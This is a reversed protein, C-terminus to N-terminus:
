IDCSYLRAAILSDYLSPPYIYPFYLFPFPGGGERVKRNLIPMFVSLLACIGSVSQLREHLDLLSAKGALDFSYM